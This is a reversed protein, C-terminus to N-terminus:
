GRRRRLVALALAALGALAAIASPEPVVAGDIRDGGPLVIQFGEGEELGMSALTQGTFEAQGSITSGSVYQYPLNMWIKWNGLQQFLRFGFTDGSAKGTTFPTAQSMELDWTFEFTEPFEVTYRFSTLPYDGQYNQFEYRDGSGYRDGAQFEAGPGASLGGQFSLRSSDISGSYTALVSGASEFFRMTVAADATAAALMPILSFLGLRASMLINIGWRLGRNIPFRERFNQPTATCSIM